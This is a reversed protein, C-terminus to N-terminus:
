STIQSKLQQNTQKPPEIKPEVKPEVKTPELHERVKIALPLDRGGQAELHTLVEHLLESEKTM